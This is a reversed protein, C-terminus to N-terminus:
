QQLEKKRHAVVMGVVRRFHQELDAFAALLGVSFPELAADGLEERQVVLHRELRRLDPARHQHEELNRAVVADAQRLLQGHDALREKIEVLDPWTSAGCKSGFAAIRRCAASMVCSCIPRSREAADTNEVATSIFFKTCRRGARTFRMRSRRASLSNRTCTSAISSARRMSPICFTAFRMASPRTSAASMTPAASRMSTSVENRM